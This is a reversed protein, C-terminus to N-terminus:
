GGAVGYLDPVGPIGVGPIGGIGPLTPYDDIGPPLAAAAPPNAPSIANSAPPLFSSGGSSGAPPTYAAPAPNGPTEPRPAIAPSPAAPPEVASPVRPAQAGSQKGAEPMLVSALRDCQKGASCTGGSPLTRSQNSVTLPAVALAGGLVAAAAAGVIAVRM